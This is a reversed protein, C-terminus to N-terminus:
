IKSVCNLLIVLREKLENIGRQASEESEIILGRRALEAAERCLFHAREAKALADMWKETSERRKSISRKAAM